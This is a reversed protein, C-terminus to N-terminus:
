LSRGCSLYDWRWPDQLHSRYTTSFRRYPIVVIRQMIVWFFVPRKISSIQSICTPADATFVKLTVFNQNAVNNSFQLM